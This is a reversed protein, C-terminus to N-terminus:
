NWEEQAQPGMLDRLKKLALRMRTKVTGLPQDLKKAIESHTLGGYYALIVVDRQEPRLGSLAEKIESRRMRGIAFRAPDGSDDALCSLLDVDQSSHAQERRKRRRVEDIVRHHAISFLWAIVKGRDSRYSSARRWVNFFADQTVEEAAGADRLMQMALSFVPGSYRAYLAELAERDQEKILSMLEGDELAPYDERRDAKSNLYSPQTVTPNREEASLSSEKTSPLDPYRTPLEQGYHPGPGPVPVSPPAWPHKSRPWYILADSEIVTVSPRSGTDQRGGRGTM